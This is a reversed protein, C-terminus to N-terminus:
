HFYLFKINSNFQYKKIKNSKQLFSFNRQIDFKNVRPSVINLEAERRQIFEYRYNM